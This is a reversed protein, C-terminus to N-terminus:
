LEDHMYDDDDDDSNSDCHESLDNCLAKGIRGLKVDGTKMLELLKDKTEELLRACFSSIYKSYARVEQKDKGAPLNNWDHVRVWIEEDTALKELTFDQMKNCLGDLLKTIRLESDRSDILNGESRGKSDLSQGHNAPYNSLEIEIEDAIANCASCKDEISSVASLNLLILLVCLVSRSKMVRTSERKSDM